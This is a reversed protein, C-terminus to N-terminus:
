KKATAGAKKSKEEGAREKESIGQELRPRERAATGKPHGQELTPGGWAGDGGLTGGLMSERGELAMGLGTGMWM